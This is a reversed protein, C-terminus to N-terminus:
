KKTVNEFTEEDAHEDVFGLDVVVIDGKQLERYYQRLVSIRAPEESYDFFKRLTGKGDMVSLQLCVGSKTTTWLGLRKEQRDFEEITKNVLTGEFTKRFAMLDENTVRVEADRGTTCGM